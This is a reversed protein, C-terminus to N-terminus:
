VMLNVDELLCKIVVNKRVSLLALVKGWLTKIPWSDWIKKSLALSIKTNCPCKWQVIHPELGSTINELFLM